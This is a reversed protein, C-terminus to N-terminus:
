RALELVRELKGRFMQAWAEQVQQREGPSASAYSKGLEYAEKESFPPATLEAMAEDPLGAAIVADWAQQLLVHNSGGVAQVLPVLIAGQRNSQEVSIELGFGPEFPNGRLALKGENAQIVEPRIPYHYLTPGSNPRHESALAWLRQAEDRLCFRVFESGVSTSSAGALLSVAGPSVATAGAPNLYSLRGASDAALMMGDFSVAPAVLSVGTEVQHLAVSSRDALARANALMRVIISWGEEWGYRNIILVLAQRNSGSRAPDAIAVWTRYEPRALDAWETPTDLNWQQIREVNALIGFSSLDCAHWRSEADRTRRGAVTEPIGALLEEDLPLGQSLGREALLAHDEIGGGFMLDPRRKDSARTAAGSTEEIYSLCEPTGFTVWNFFISTQHEKQYWENFAQEFVECIRANHPTVITLWKAAVPPEMVAPSPESCGPQLLFPVLLALTAVTRVLTVKRATRM